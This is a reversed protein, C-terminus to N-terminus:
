RDLRGQIVAGALRVPKGKREEPVLVQDGQVRAVVSAGCPSMDGVTLGVTVCVM